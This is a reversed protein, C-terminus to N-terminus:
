WGPNQVLYGKFIEGPTFPHLYAKDNWVRNEFVVPLYAAEAPNGAAPTIKLGYFPGTMVGENGAILWRRIDWFRHEEFALEVARENRVRERFAEKSLGRPLPPMDVRRRIEDVADYAEAPPTNEAENLAEAYNLYIEGLRFVMWNIVFSSSGTPLIDRPISKIMWHGGRCHNSHPPGSLSIKGVANNWTDGHSVITQRFRPDLESYKQLLDNGGAMNWQQPTGDKKEYHRVFNFPVSVGGDQWSSGAWNPMLVAMPRGGRGWAGYAKSALIIERNDPQTWMMEYNRDAGYEEVLACGNAMAWDLTAKAADAAKKWRNQDYNGYCILPNNAGFDIYPTATNFLPSAAYLLTRSKLALAAGTTARGQMASPQAPPLLGIAADCDSIIFDICTELPSRPILIEDEANLRKDVIPVGGYRKVTEFYLLARLFYAEGKVQKKFADTANPVGDVRELLINCKRIAQWRSNVREDEDWLINNNPIIGSNWGQANSWTNAMEGEDCAAALIGGNLRRELAGSMPYGNPISSQYTAAVFTETQTMDSFIVDETIDVGPPKELFDRNCSFFVVTLLLVTRKM